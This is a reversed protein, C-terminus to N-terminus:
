CAYKKTYEMANQKYSDLNYKYERALDPRLPDDPNPDNLLSSISLLVKELTLSPSWSGKLIDLCIMGDQNINPHYIPTIFKVSPPSFPYQPTISITLKFIGGEYPTESPGNMTAVWDTMSSEDVQTVNFENGSKMLKKHENTM